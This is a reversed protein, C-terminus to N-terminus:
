NNDWRKVMTKFHNALFEDHFADVIVAHSLGKILRDIRESLMVTRFMLHNKQKVKMNTMKKYRMTYRDLDILQAHLIQKNERQLDLAEKFWDVLKQNM